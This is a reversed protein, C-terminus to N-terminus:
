GRCIIIYDYDEDDKFPENSEGCCHVKSYDLIQRVVCCDKPDGILGVQYKMIETAFNRYLNIYEQLEEQLFLKQSEFTNINKEIVSIMEDIMGTYSKNGQVKELIKISELLGQYKTKLDTEKKLLHDINKM